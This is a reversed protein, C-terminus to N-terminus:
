AEHYVLDVCLAGALVMPVRSESGVIEVLYDDASTFLDTMIGRSLHEIKGILEGGLGTFQYLSGYCGGSIRGLSSGAADTVEIRAGMSLCTPHMRCILKGESDKVNIANRWSCGEREITMAVNGGSNRVEMRIGLMSRDLFFKGVKQGLSVEEKATGLRIHNEADCLDYEEHLSTMGIHEHIRIKRTNMLDAM